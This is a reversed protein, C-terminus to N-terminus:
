TQQLVSLFVNSSSFFLAEVPNLELCDDKQISHRIDERLTIFTQRSEVHCTLAVWGTLIIQEDPPVSKKRYDRPVPMTQILPMREQRFCMLFLKHCAADLMLMISKKSDAIQSM